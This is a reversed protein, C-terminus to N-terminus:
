YLGLVYRLAEGVCAVVVIVFLSLSFAYISRSRIDLLMLSIANSVTTLLSDSTGNKIVQIAPGSRIDHSM